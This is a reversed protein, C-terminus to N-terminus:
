RERANVCHHQDLVHAFAEGIRAGVAHSNLLYEFPTMEEVVCESAFHPDIHLKWAVVACLLCITADAQVLTCAVKNAGLDPRLVLPLGEQCEKGTCEDSSINGWYHDSLNGSMGGTGPEISITHFQM